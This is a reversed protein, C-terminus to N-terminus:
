YPAPDGGSVTRWACTKPYRLDRVSRAGRRQPRRGATGSARLGVPLARGARRGVKRTAEGGGGSHTGPYGHLSQPGTWDLNASLPFPRTSASSRRTSLSRRPGPPRSRWGDSETTRAAWSSSHDTASPTPDMSARSYKTLHLDYGAVVDRGITGALDQTM